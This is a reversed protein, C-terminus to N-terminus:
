AQQEWILELGQEWASTERKAFALLSAEDLLPAGFFSKSWVPTKRWSRYDKDLIAIVDAVSDHLADADMFGVANPAVEAVETQAKVTQSDTEIHTPMSVVREEEDVVAGLEEPVYVPGGFVGACYWRAGNSLARAYLMNRPYKKYTANSFLGAKMADKTTFTSDPGCPLWAGDIKEFFAIAVEEDTMKTVQFRYKGSRQIAAAILNSGLAAKGQIIHIGTMAAFPPLGLERGALIKVMAKAADRSDAFLGSKVFVEGISQLDDISRLPLKDTQALLAERGAPPLAKRPPM